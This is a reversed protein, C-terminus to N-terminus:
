IFLEEDQRAEDVRSRNRRFLFAGFGRTIGKTIASVERFPKIVSDQVVQATENIRNVVDRGALDLREVQIHLAEGTEAVMTEVRSFQDRAATAIEVLNASAQRLNETISKVPVMVERTERMFRELQEGLRKSNIYIAILVGAQTIVALGTLIVFLPLLSEM